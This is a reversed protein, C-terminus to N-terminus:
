SNSFYQNNYIPLFEQKKNDIVDIKSDDLNLNPAEFLESQCIIAGNDDCNNRCSPLLKM